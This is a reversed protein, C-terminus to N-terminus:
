PIVIVRIIVIPQKLIQGKLYPDDVEKTDRTNNISKVIKMGDVVAGFAAFGLGDKNRQGGFDLSPQAGVTIFFDDLASDPKDRAMSITGNLHKIGTMETTELAIPALRKADERARGQIVAIKPSGNDNDHRVIRQFSGGDYHGAELYKLFNAVTKPAKKRYLEIDISGINTELRIKVIDEGSIDSALSTFTLISLATIVLLKTINKM